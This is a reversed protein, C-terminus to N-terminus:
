VYAGFELFIEANLDFVFMWFCINNVGEWPSNRALFTLYKSCVRVLNKKAFPVGFRIKSRKDCKYFVSSGIENLWFPSTWILLSDFQQSIFVRDNLIKETKLVIDDKQKNSQKRFIIGGLVIIICNMWIFM